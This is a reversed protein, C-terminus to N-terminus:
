ATIRNDRSRSTQPEFKLGTLDSVTNGVARWWQSMQEFSAINGPRLSAFILWALKNCLKVYCLTCHFIQNSQYSHM